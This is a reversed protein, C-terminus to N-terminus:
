SGSLNAAATSFVDGIANALTSMSLIAALAVLVLLLGYETLDQGEEEDWLQRIVNAMERRREAHFPLVTIEM